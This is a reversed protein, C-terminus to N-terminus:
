SNRWTRGLRISSVTTKAIGLQRAIEAGSKTSSRIASVQEKSLKAQPHGEGRRMQGKDARPGRRPVSVRRGKKDMDRVNALADGIFLHHPNVCSPNDCSHLVWQGEPIPGVNLAYSVRHASLARGTGGENIAGYGQSKKAGTWNWCGTAADVLYKGEFRERLSAREPARQETTGHKRDRKYHMLCLGKAVAARICNATCTTPM